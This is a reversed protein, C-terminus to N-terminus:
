KEQLILIEELREKKSEILKAVNPNTGNANQQLRDLEATLIEAEVEMAQVNKQKQAYEEIIFKKIQEAYAKPDDTLLGICEAADLIIFFPNKAGKCGKLIKTKLDGANVRARDFAKLREAVKARNIEAQQQEQMLKGMGDFCKPKEEPATGSQNAYERLNM